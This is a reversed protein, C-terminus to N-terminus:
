IKAILEGENFSHLTIGDRTVSFVEGTMTGDIVLVFGDVVMEIDVLNGTTKYGNEESATVLPTRVFAPCICNIRLGKRKCFYVLSKSLGVVGWKAATYIPQQFAFGTLGAVSAVNVIVGKTLYDLALRCGIIVGNLDVDVVKKWEDEKSTAFRSSETIGANNILINIEGYKQIGVKFVSEFENYNAVNAKVFIASPLSNVFAPDPNLDCLILNHSKSLRIALASLGGTILATPKTM